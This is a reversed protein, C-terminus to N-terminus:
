ISTNHNFRCCFLLLLLQAFAPLEDLFLNQCVTRPVDPGFPQAVETGEDKGDAQGDEKSQLCAIDVFGHQHEDRNRGNGIQEEDHLGIDEDQTGVPFSNDEPLPLVIVTASLHRM